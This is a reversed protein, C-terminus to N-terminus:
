RKFEQHEHHDVTPVQDNVSQHLTEVSYWGLRLLAGPAGSLSTELTSPPADAVREILTSAALVISLM